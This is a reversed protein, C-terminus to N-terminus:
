YVVQDGTQMAAHAYRYVWLATTATLVAHRQKNKRRTTHSGWSGDDQQGAIIALVADRYNGTLPEQLLRASMLLEATLDFNGAAATWTVAEGLYRAVAARRQALWPPVQLRGFDTLAVIEHVLAYLELSAATRLQEPVGQPPLQPALGQAIREIRSKALVGPLSIGPDAGLQQLFLAITLRKTPDCHQVMRLVDRAQTTIEGRLDDPEGATELLHAALVLHYYDTLNKRGGYVWQEFEPLDALRAMHAQLQAAFHAREATDRSLNRRVYYGVAEDLMDPLGGDSVSAPHQALWENGRAIVADIEAGTPQMAAPHNDAAPAPLVVVALLFLLRRLGKIWTSDTFLSVSERVRELFATM